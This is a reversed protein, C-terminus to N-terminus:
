TASLWARRRQDLLRRWLPLFDEHDIVNRFLWPQLDAREGKLLLGEALIRGLLPQGASGLDVLDV